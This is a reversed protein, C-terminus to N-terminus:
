QQTNKLSNNNMNIIKVGTSEGDVGNVECEVHKEAVLDGQVQNTIHTTTKIGLKEKLKNVQPDFIHHFQENTAMLPLLINQIAEADLRECNDVFQEIVLQADLTTSELATPAFWATAMAEDWRGQMKLLRRKDIFRSMLTKLSPPPADTAVTCPLGEFGKQCHPLLASAVKRAIPSLKRLTHLKLFTVILLIAITSTDPIIERLDELEYAVFSSEIVENRILQLAFSEAVAFAQVIDLNHLLPRLTEHTAMFVPDKYLRPRIRRLQEKGYLEVM